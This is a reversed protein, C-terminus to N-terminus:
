CTKLLEKALVQSVIYFFSLSEEKIIRWFIILNKKKRLYSYYKITM